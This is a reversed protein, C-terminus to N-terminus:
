RFDLIGDTTPYCRGCSLCTYGGVNNELNGGCVICMLLDDLNSSEFLSANGGAVARCFIWPAILVKGFFKAFRRDTPVYKGFPGIKNALRDLVGLGRYQLDTFATQLLSRKVYAPHHSILTTEIDSPELSFPSDPTPRILWKLVHMLYLKNRYTVILCGGGSLVRHLEMFCAKANTVHHFVRVMVISDFSSMRFPLHHLDGAVYIAKGATNERAQQLLSISGDFMVVQQFRDLYCDALRGFGCGIDILRHGSVPLMDRVVAREAQDLKYQQWGSWFVKYDIDDYLEHPHKHPDIHLPIGM